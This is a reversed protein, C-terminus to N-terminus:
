GVVSVAASQAGPMILSVVVSTASLLVRSVGSPSAAAALLRRRSVGGGGVWGLRLRVLSVVRLSVFCSSSALCGLKAVSWGAARLVVRQVLCLQVARREGRGLVCPM